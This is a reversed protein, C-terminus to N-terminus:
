EKDPTPIEDGNTFLWAAGAKEGADEIAISGILVAVVGAIAQWIEEPVALYHLVVAQVIAFVALWFKRSKWFPYM